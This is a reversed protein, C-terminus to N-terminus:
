LRNKAEERARPLLRQRLWQQMPEPLRAFDTLAFVPEAGRPVEDGAATGARRVSAHQEREVLTFSPKRESGAEPKIALCLDARLHRLVRNSEFLLNAEPGVLSGLERLRQSLESDLASVLFARRAGAALYRATDTGQVAFTQKAASEEGATEERVTEEGATEEGTTEEYVRALSSHAHTTVKVAIWDFEKLAAILGCVLSTKGVGCGSGSVVVVAM